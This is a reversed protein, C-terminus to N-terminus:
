GPFNLSLPVVSGASGAELYVANTTPLMTVAPPTGSAVFAGNSRQIFVTGYAAVAAEVRVYVIGRSIVSLPVTNLAYTSLTNSITPNSAYSLDLVVGRFLQSSAFNTDCKLVSLNYKSTAATNACYVPDGPKIPLSPVANVTTVASAFTALVDKLSISLNVGPTRTTISIVRTGTNFSATLFGSTNFSNALQYGLSVAATEAGVPPAYYFGYTTSLGSEPNLLNWEYKTNVVPLPTANITLAFTQFSLSSSNFAPRILNGVGDGYTVGPSRDDTYSSPLNFNFQAPM